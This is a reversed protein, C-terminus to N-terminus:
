IWTRGLAHEIKTKIAEGAAKAHITSCLLWHVTLHDDNLDLTITGPTFTIANALVTRALDSRLRTRFHVIRPNTNGSIVAKVVSFSSAYLSIVMLVLFRILSLPRPIFFLLGAEHEPLFIHYTLSATLISAGLGFLVSFLETETSFLFWVLFLFLSTLVFRIFAWIRRSNM